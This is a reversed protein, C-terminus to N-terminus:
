YKKLTEEVLQELLSSDMLRNTALIKGESGTPRIVKINTKTLKGWIKSKIINLEEINQNIKNLTILLNKGEFPNCFGNSITLLTVDDCKLRLAIDLHSASITGGDIYRKNGHSISTFLAPVASSAIAASGPTLGSGKHLIERRGNEIDAVMIWTERKPWSNNLEKNLYEELYSLKHTGDNLASSFFLGFHPFKVGKFTNFPKKWNKRTFFKNPHDNLQKEMISAFYSLDKSIEKIKRESGLLLAAISGASTGIILDFSNLDIKDEQEYKQLTALQWALGMTGGSSLILIKKYNKVIKKDIKQSRTRGLALVTFLTVLIAKNKRM